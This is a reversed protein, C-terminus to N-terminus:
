NGKKLNGGKGRGWGERKGWVNAEGGAGWTLDGITVIGRRGGVWFFGRMRKVKSIRQWGGGNIKWGEKEEAPLLSPPFDM